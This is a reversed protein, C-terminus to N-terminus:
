VIRRCLTVGDSMSLQSIEIRQDSALFKNLELIFKRYYRVFDPMQVEDGVGVTGLWLTNDYAIIGGVRVLKLLLPHYNMYNDKDADVFVFDFFGHNKEQWLLAHVWNLGM